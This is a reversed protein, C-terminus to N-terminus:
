LDVIGHATDGTLSMVMTYHRVVHDNHVSISNAVAHRVRGVATDRSVQLVVHEPMRGEQGFWLLM